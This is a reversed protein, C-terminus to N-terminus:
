SISGSEINERDIIFGVTASIDAFIVKVKTNNDRLFDNVSSYNSDIYNQLNFVFSTMQVTYVNHNRTLLISTADIQSELREREIDESPIESNSLDISMQNVNSVINNGRIQASNVLDTIEKYLNASIM